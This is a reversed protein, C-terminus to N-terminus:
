HFTWWSGRIATVNHNNSALGDPPVPAAIRVGAVASGARHQKGELEQMRREVLDVAAISRSLLSQMSQMESREVDMVNWLKSIEDLHVQADSSNTVVATGGRSTSIALAQVDM